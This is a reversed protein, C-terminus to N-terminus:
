VSICSTELAGPTHLSGDINWRVFNYQAGGSGTATSSATM